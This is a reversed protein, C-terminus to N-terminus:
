GPPTRWRPRCGLRGPRAPRRGPGARRPRPPRRACPPRLPSPAGASVQEVLTPAAGSGCCPWASDVLVTTAAVAAITVVVAALDAGSVELAAGAVDGPPRAVCPQEDTAGAPREHRRRVEDRGAGQGDPSTTGHGGAGGRRATTM